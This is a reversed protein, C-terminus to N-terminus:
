VSLPVIYLYCQQSFSEYKQHGWCDRSRYDGAMNAKTVILSAQLGRADISDRYRGGFYTGTAHRAVLQVTNPDVAGVPLYMEM